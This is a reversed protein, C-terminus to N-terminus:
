RLKLTNSFIVTRGQFTYKTEGDEVEAMAIESPIGFSDVGIGVPHKAGNYESVSTNGLLEGGDKFQTQYPNTGIKTSNYHDQLMQLENKKQQAQNIVGSLLPSVVSGLGPAILNLLQPAMAGLLEGGGDYKKLKKKKM